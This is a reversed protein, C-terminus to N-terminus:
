SGTQVAVLFAEMLKRMDGSSGSFNNAIVCFALPQGSESNIYGAYSRIREMSGSKGWVKGQASTGKFMRKLTGTQGGIALTNKFTSYMSKDQYIQQLIKTFHHSTINTRPSLGSGDRMFFGDMNIGKSTWYEQIVELGKQYSTKGGKQKGLELVMAECYLNVSKHNAAKAMALLPPSSHTYIITPKSSNSHMVDVEKSISIGNAKLKRDLRQVAFLPPNPISGKIKFLQSGVPITGRVIRQNSYPAGFIYANDGTGAKDFIVESTVKMNPISPEIKNIPAVGSLKNKQQFFLYYLNEHFNLGWAGSAYYNGLDNWQWSDPIVQTGYSSVDAIVAGNIQSIGVKKVANLLKDLVVDLGDSGELLDAGFTPDGGGILYLNGNLVGNSISGSYGLKTEFRYDKGLIELATATTIIKTISAPIFSQHANVDVLNEGTELNLIHVGLQGNKLSPHEVIKKIADKLNSTSPKQNIPIPSPTPPPASTNNESCAM